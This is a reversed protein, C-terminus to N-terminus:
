VGLRKKAAMLKLKNVNSAYEWLFGHHHRLKKDLAKCLSGMNSNTQRVADHISVFIGIIKKNADMQVVPRNRNTPTGIGAVRDNSSRRHNEEWTVLRINDFSYGKSENIRDVSPVHKRLYGSEAWQEYITLFNTKLLLWNLLEEKTYSPMDHGRIRSTTKQNSYMQRVIGAITKRYNANHIPLCVNCKSRHRTGDKYKYTPFMSLSKEQKCMACKKM